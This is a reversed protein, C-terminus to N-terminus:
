IRFGGRRPAGRVNISKTRKAAKNFKRASKRKNVKKRRM